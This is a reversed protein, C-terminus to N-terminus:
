LFQQRPLLEELVTLLRDPDGMAVVHELMRMPDAARATAARAHIALFREPQEKRLSAALTEAFLNHYRIIHQQGDPQWEVFLGQRLIANICAESDQRDLIHDAEQASFPGLLVSEMLFVRLDDPLLDVIQTLLYTALASTPQHVYSIHGTEGYALLLLGMAWGQGARLLSPTAEQELGHSALLASAEDTTFQLETGGLTVLTGAAVAAIAPVLPPTRGALVLKLGAPRQRVLQEIVGEASRVGDLHHCDDLILVTGPTQEIHALLISIAAFANGGRALAQRTAVGAGPLAHDAAAALGDVLRSPERDGADLSYWIFHTNPQAGVWSALLATKGSGAPAVILLLSARTELRALLRSRILPAHDHRPPGVKSLPYSDFESDKM